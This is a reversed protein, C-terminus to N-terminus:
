AVVWAEKDGHHAFNLGVQHEEACLTQRHRWVAVSVEL